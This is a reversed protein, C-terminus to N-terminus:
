WTRVRGVDVHIFNSNPYYGVGGAELSVAAKRLTKLRVDGLRLDMAMGQMHLSRKAVGDSHEALEANTEPSRYGSVIQYPKRSGVKRHLGNLLDLLRPDIPHVDGTRFDRMIYDVEQLAGDIYDGKQWYVTTLTEGTHTNDLSIKRQGSAIAAANAVHPMAIAAASVALFRRRTFLTSVGAKSM